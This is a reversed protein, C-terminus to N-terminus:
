LKICIRKRQLWGTLLVVLFAIVVSRLLGGWGENLFSPYRFHTLEFISYLLYPVLYCTLTAIGAPLILQFWNLKGKVDVIWAVCVFALLSIGTCIGVWSATAQIKSIGGFPRVACGIGILTIKNNINGVLVALRDQGPACVLHCFWVQWRLHLCRGM